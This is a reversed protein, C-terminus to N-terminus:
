VERQTQYRHSIGPRPQSAARRERQLHGSISNDNQVFDASHFIGLNKAVSLIVFHAM